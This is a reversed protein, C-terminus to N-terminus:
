AHHPKVLGPQAGALPLADANLRQRALTRVVQRDANCLDVAPCDNEDIGGILDAQCVTSQDTSRNEGIIISERFSNPRITQM